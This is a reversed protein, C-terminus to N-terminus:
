LLYPRLRMTLKLDADPELVLPAVVGTGSRNHADVTHSVPELSVFGADGGPTYLMLVDLPQDAQMVLGMGMEPWVIEAQGDWGAYAVNFFGDSLVRGDRYHHIPATDLTLFQDPLHESTETWVGAAGFRLRTQPTRPFWPHFGGGFPLRVRGKNTLVLEASLGQDSLAYTLRGHYRFPGPGEADLSLEASTESQEAVRWASSFANGHNPFPEGDINPKLAHFRGDIAFGGGSIRNSFPALVNCGLAFPGARSAHPRTDFVDAWQGHGDKRKFTAVAGGCGPLLSVLHECAALSIPQFTHLLPM